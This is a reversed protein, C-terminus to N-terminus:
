IENIVEHDFHFLLQHSLVDDEFLGEDRAVLFIENLFGSIFFRVKSIINYFDQPTFSKVFHFCRVQDCADTILAHLMSDLLTKGTHVSLISSNENVDGDVFNKHKM